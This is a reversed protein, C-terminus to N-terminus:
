LSLVRDVELFAQVLETHIDRFPMRGVIMPVTDAAYGGRAAATKDPAYGMGGNTIGMVLTVPAKAEVVVDNKIAQMIELPAGLFEVPGLRIGQIEATQIMLDEGKEIRSIISRLTLINVVAMRVAGNEESAGDAYVIAEKEALMEKIRGLPVEKSSFKRIVDTCKLKNVALPKATQLGHRVSNAFRASIIDLALLAEKEPKHVVCSNVDGQAGQLFLGVAGPNERELNNMAIGCYDGHIYRTLQCCVVPHCGFYAMFGSMKASTKDIFKLVHCKTDTLEPKAPRWDDRLVDELPPADKDYERNLGIGECPVVAHLMEVEQLRESAGACAKAIKGPLLVIYPDDENGWGVYGGTNPGSHTHTCHVMVNEAPVGTQKAVLMKVKQVIEPTVGIIDCSVIVAKTGNQEFAVARAKLVDRVGISYRNLYPGFGCLGVGVRPTIDVEFFGAKM